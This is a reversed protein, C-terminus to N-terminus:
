APGLISISELLDIYESLLEHRKANNPHIVDSEEGVYSDWRDLAKDVHKESFRSNTDSLTIHAADAFRTNQYQLATRTSTGSLGRRKKRAQQEQAEQQRAGADDDEDEDRYGEEQDYFALFDADYPAGRSKLDRQLEAYHEQGGVALPDSLLEQRERVEAEQRTVPRDRFDWLSSKAPEPSEFMPSDPLTRSQKQLWQAYTEGPAWRSFSKMYGFLDEHRARITNYVAAAEEKIDGLDLEPTAPAPVDPDDMVIDGYVQERAQERQREFAGERAEMYGVRSARIFRQIDMYAFRDQRENAPGVIDVPADSFYLQEIQANRALAQAFMDLAPLNLDAGIFHVYALQSKSDPEGVSAIADALPQVFAIAKETQVTYLVRARAEETEELVLLAENSRDYPDDILPNKDFVLRHLAVANRILDALRENVDKSAINYNDSLDLTRLSTSVMAYEIVAAVGDVGLNCGSLALHVYLPTTDPTTPLDVNFSMFELLPGKFKDSKNIDALNNDSIDLTISYEDTDQAHQDAIAQATAVMMGALQPDLGCRRAILTHMEDFCGACKGGYEEMLPFLPPVAKIAGETGLRKFFDRTIHTGSLVLTNVPKETYRRLMILEHVIKPIVISSTRTDNEHKLYVSLSIEPNTVTVVPQGSADMVGAYDFSLGTVAGILDITPRESFQRIPMSSDFADYRGTTENMGIEFNHGWSEPFQHESLAATVKDQLESYIAAANALYVHIGRMDTFEPVSLNVFAAAAEHMAVYVARTRGGGIRKSGRSSKESEGIRRSSLARGLAKIMWIIAGILIWMTTLTAVIEQWEWGDFQQRTGILPQQRAQAGKQGQMTSEWRQQIDEVSGFKVDGSQLLKQYIEDTELKSIDGEYTGTWTLLAQNYNERVFQRELGHMRDAAKHTDKAMQDLCIQANPFDEKMIDFVVAVSRVARSPPLVKGERVREMPVGLLNSLRQYAPQMADKKGVLERIELTTDTIQREPTGERGLGTVYLLDTENVPGIGDMLGNVDMGFQEIYFSTAALSKFDAIAKDFIDPDVDPMNTAIQRMNGKTSEDIDNASFISHALGLAKSMSTRLTDPVNSPHFAKVVDDMGVTSAAVEAVFFWADPDSKCKNLDDIMEDGWTMGELVYKNRFERLSDKFRQPDDVFARQAFRKGKYVYYGVNVWLMLKLLRCAYYFNQGKQIDKCKLGMLDDVVFEVIGWSGALYAKRAVENIKEKWTQEELARQEEEVALREEELKRIKSQVEALLREDEPDIEYENCMFNQFRQAMALEGVAEGSEDPDSM